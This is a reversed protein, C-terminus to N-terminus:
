EKMKQWTTYERTRSMRHTACNELQQKKAIEVHFCGCSKISGNKVQAVNIVKENGCDCRFLWFQQSKADKHDLRVVVLRGYKSGIEVIPKRDFIGTPM